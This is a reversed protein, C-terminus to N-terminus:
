SGSTLIIYDIVHELTLVRIKQHIGFNMKISFGSAAEFIGGDFRMKAVVIGRVGLKEGIEELTEGPQRFKAVLKQIAVYPNPEGVEAQIREVFRNAAIRRM